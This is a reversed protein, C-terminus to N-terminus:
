WSMGVTVDGHCVLLSMVMVYWCHCRWSMGVSIDGTIDVTFDGHSVLLSMAM